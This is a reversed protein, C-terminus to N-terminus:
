RVNQLEDWQRRDKRRIYIVCQPDELIQPSIDFMNIYLNKITSLTIPSPMPCRRLSKGYQLFFCETLTHLHSPTHTHTHSMYFTCYICTHTHQQHNCSLFDVLKTKYVHHTKDIFMVLLCAPFVHLLALYIDTYM